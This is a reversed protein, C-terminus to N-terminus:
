QVVQLNPVVVQQMGTQINQMTRRWTIFAELMKIEQRLGDRVQQPVSIDLKLRTDQQKMNDIVGELFPIPIMNSAMIIVGIQAVIANGDVQIPSGQSGPPVSM